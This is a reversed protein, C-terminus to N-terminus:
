LLWHQIAQADSGGLGVHGSRHQAVKKIVEKTIDFEVFDLVAEYEEL